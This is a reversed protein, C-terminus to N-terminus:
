SRFRRLHRQHEKTAKDSIAPLSRLTRPYQGGDIHPIEGLIEANM